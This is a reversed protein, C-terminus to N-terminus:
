RDNRPFVKAVKVEYDYKGKIEANYFSGKSDAKLLGIVVDLPVDKYTYSNKTRNFNIILGRQNIKISKIASSEFNSNQNGYLTNIVKVTM